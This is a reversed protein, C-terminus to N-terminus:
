EEEMCDKGRFTCGKIFSKFDHGILIREQENLTMFNRLFKWEDAVAETQVGYDVSPQDDSLDLLIINYIFCLLFKLLEQFINYIDLKTHFARGKPIDCTKGIFGEACSCEPTGDDNADACTGGNNCPNPDCALHFFM